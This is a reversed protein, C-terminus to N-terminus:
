ARQDDARLFLAGPEIIEIDPFHLLALRRDGSLHILHKIEVSGNRRPATRSPSRRHPPSLSYFLRAPKIELPTVFSKAATGSGPAEIGERKPKAPARRTRGCLRVL